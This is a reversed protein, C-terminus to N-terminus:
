SKAFGLSLVSVKVDGAQLLEKVCAIITAGTTVVDDILLLHRGRVAEPQILQFVTEVNEHREWRGKHTQSGEFVTRGVCKELIPLSTIASVGRAIEMSQNYGRQRQRKRALPIPIIGDIGDFFGAGEIEKAIMRGIIEGIEPHNKYKLEYIVNATESHSEYYFFATAREIPIQGWFLKAMENQYANLHFDTRPLHLNCKSCITEESATLRHGCVVCLRPSILDLLQRWFSIPKM